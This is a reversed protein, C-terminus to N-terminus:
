NILRGGTLGTDILGGNILSGVGAVEQLDLNRVIADLIDTSGSNYSSVGYILDYDKKSGHLLIGLTDFLNIRDPDSHIFCRFQGFSGITEDRDPNYYFLGGYTLLSSDNFSGIGNVEVIFMTDTTSTKNNQMRLHSKAGVQLTFGDGVDNAMMWPLITAVGTGSYTGSQYDLLHSFDGSFHGTGKDDYVYSSENRTQGTVTIQNTAVTYRNNPDTKAYTPYNEKPDPPAPMTVNTRVLEKDLKYDWFDSDRTFRRAEAIANFVAERHENDMNPITEFARIAFAMNTAENSSPVNLRRKGNASFDELTPSHTLDQRCEELAKHREHMLMSITANHEERQWKAFMKYAQYVEDKKATAALRNDLPVGPFGLKANGNLADKWKIALWVISHTHYAEPMLADFEARLPKFAAGLPHSNYEQRFLEIYRNCIVAKQAAYLSKGAPTKEPFIM